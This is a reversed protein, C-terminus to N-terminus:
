INEDWLFGSVMPFELGKQPHPISMKQLLVIDIAKIVPQYLQEVVYEHM